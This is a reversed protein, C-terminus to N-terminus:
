HLTCFERELSLGDGDKMPGTETPSKNFLGHLPPIWKQTLIQGHKLPTGENHTAIWLENLLDSM